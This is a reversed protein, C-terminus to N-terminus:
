SSSYTISVTAGKCNDQNASGELMRVTMGSWTGVGTGSPVEQDITVPNGSLAFDAATCAPLSSDEAGGSVGAISATVQHVFVKSAGPNDFNGALPAAPGGPYLGTVSSTQHITLQSSSGTSASGSGSGTNTWFAYAVASTVLTLALGAAVAAAKKRKLVSM